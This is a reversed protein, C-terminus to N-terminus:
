RKSGDKGGSSERQAGWKSNKRRGKALRGDVEGRRGARVTKRTCWAHRGPWGRGCWQARSASPCRPRRTPWTQTQGASARSPRTPRRPATPPPRAAPRLRGRPLRWRRPRGPRSPEGRTKIGTGDPPPRGPLRRRRPYGVITTTGAAPTPHTRRAPPYTGGSMPIGPRAHSWSPTSLYDPGRNGRRWAETPASQAPCCPRNIVVLPYSYAVFGCTYM